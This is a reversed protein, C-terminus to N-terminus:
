ERTEPTTSGSEAARSAAILIAGLDYLEDADIGMRDSIIVGGDFDQEVYRPSEAWVRNDAGNVGVPGPLEVLAHRPSTTIADLVARIAHTEDHHVGDSLDEWPTERGLRECAAKYHIRALREVLAPDHATM